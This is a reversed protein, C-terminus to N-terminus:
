VEVLIIIVFVLTIIIVIIIIVNIIIVNVNVNKDGGQALRLSCSRLFCAWLVSGAVTLM